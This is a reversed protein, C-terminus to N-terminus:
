ALATRRTSSVVRSRGAQELRVILTTPIQPTIVLLEDLLVPRPLQSSAYAHLALLTPISGHSRGSEIEAIRDLNIRQSSDKSDTCARGRLAASLEQTTIPWDCGQVRGLEERLEATRWVYTSVPPFSPLPSIPSPATAEPLLVHLSPPLPKPMLPGFVTLLGLYVKALRAFTEISVGQRGLEIRSYWAPDVGLSAAMLSPTLQPVLGALALRCRRIGGAEDKWSELAMQRLRTRVGQWRRVSAASLCGGESQYAQVFLRMHEAYDDCMLVTITL